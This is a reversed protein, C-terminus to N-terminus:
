RKSKGAPMHFGAAQMLAPMQQAMAALQAIAEMQQAHPDRCFRDLLYFIPTLDGSNAIYTELDDIGVKRRDGGSLAESLASPAMDIQGAVRVLGKSYVCVSLCERLSRHKQALGPEFTLSLQQM